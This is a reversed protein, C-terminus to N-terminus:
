FYYTKFLVSSKKKIKGNKNETILLAAGNFKKILHMSQKVSLISCATSLWDATTGDAAIVTVNRQHTVGIGTKPDAIHSYKKGNLEVYQYIDGSTSVAMNQLSLMQPLIDDKEEPRNIGIVWGKQGGAANSMVMNGGANVMASTFGNQKILDLAAQAVFGKGLGGIDLQMGPKELYVAHKLTDLHVYKYSVKQLASQLADKDPFSKTKRARRWLKVVPGITIDFAGSSLVAAEQAKEIIDFLPASVQVYNNKGSSASLRNIESSDIYDSLINNLTDAMLFAKDAVTAAKVSDTTYITITFPSGMKPQEFVYKKQAGAQLFLLVCTIALWYSRFMNGPLYRQFFLLLFYM